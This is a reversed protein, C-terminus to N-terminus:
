ADGDMGQVIDALSPVKNTRSREKREGDTHGIPYGLAFGVWAMGVAPGGLYYGVVSSAGLFVIWFYIQRRM